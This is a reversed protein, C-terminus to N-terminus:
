RDCPPAATPQMGRVCLDAPRETGADTWWREDPTFALLEHSRADLEVGPPADPWLLWDEHEDRTPLRLAGGPTVADRTALVRVPVECRLAENRAVEAGARALFRGAGVAEAVIWVADVRGVRGLAAADHAVRTRVGRDNLERATRRGAFDSAGDAVIARPALGARQAEALATVVLPGDGWVLLEADREVDRLAAPVVARPTVLRAGDGLPTGDWETAGPATADGVPATGPEAAWAGLEELWADRPGPAGGRERAWHFAGRQADVFRACVGRWGHADIWAAFGEEFDAGARDFSWGEPQARVWEIATNAAERVLAIGDSVRDVGDRGLRSALDRDACAEGVTQPDPLRYRVRRTTM